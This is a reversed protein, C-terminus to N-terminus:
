ATERSGMKKLAHSQNKRQNKTRLPNKKKRKKMEEIEEEDAM